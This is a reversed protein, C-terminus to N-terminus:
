HRFHRVGTFYLSIGAKKAAEIVEADNLSGGPEAIACIGARAAADISDRFPFFADSALSAGKAKKGAKKVALETSDVRSPLGGGIGVTAMGKAIVIANSKVNKAVKWAFLLDDREKKGAGQGAKLEFACGSQQTDREQALMGGDIQRYDVGAAKKGIEMELVRLNKKKKLEELADADYGPAIMLENFFLTIKKATALDCKRNMAIIGGFASVSDCELANEFALDIEGACAVGCPNGHKVISAAPGDFERVIQIAADADLYNNYSLEKGNLQHADVLTNTQIIRRYLAAQQHPNEGYRLEATKSLGIALERPFKEAGYKEAFYGSVFSDYAATHRFAEVMLENKMKVSLGFGNVRLDALVKEYQSPHVIAGVSEHNKAAGRILAPGGIDINEVAQELSVVKKSIAQTFPYLNVVVLDITDIGLKKLQQLHKLDRRALIGAHIKPHLTKVRGDLMEPVGTIDEIKASEIGSKRLFEYTGGSSIIKVGNAALERAFEELGAKDSVSILATKVKM